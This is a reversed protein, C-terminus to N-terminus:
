SRLRGAAHEAASPHPVADEGALRGAEFLPIGHTAVGASASACAHAVVGPYRRVLDGRVLFVIQGDLAPDIHGGLEGTRWPAEHLDAVLEPQAPGSRRFYTGRQDTPYERWLLERAM